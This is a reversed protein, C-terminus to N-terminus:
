RATDLYTYGRKVRVVGTVTIKEGDPGAPDLGSPVPGHVYICGSADAIMWDSRSVPPGSRCAGRWGQFTGTITVTRSEFRDPAALIQGILGEPGSLSPKPEVPNGSCAGIGSFILWLTAFWLLTRQCTM